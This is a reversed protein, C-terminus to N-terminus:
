AASVTVGRWFAVYNAIEKAADKPDRYVWVADTNVDGNVNLSYYNALGKWSCTSTTDSDVLLQAEVSDMPFYQNGEIEITKDSQAIVAGNWTAVYM